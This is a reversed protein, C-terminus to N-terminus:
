ENNLYYLGENTGSNLVKSFCESLRSILDNIMQGSLIYKLLDSIVKVYTKLKVQKKKEIFEILIKSFEADKLAYNKVKDQLNIFQNKVYDGIKTALQKAFNLVEKAKKALDVMLQGAATTTKLVGRSAKDALDSFWSENIMNYEEEILMKENISLHHKYLSTFIINFNIIDSNEILFNDFKKIYKM